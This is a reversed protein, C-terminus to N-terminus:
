FESCTAHKTKTSLLGFFIQNINQWAV